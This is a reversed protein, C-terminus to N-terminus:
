QIIDEKSLCPLKFENSCDVCIVVGNNRPKTKCFVAQNLILSGCKSCIYTQKTPRQVINLVEVTLDPNLKIKM